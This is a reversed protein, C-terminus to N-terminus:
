RRLLGVLAATDHRRLWAVVCVVVLTIAPIAVLEPDQVATLVTAGIMLPVQCASALGCLRPVLLAIAGAFELWGVVVMGPIGLGILDFPDVAIPNGLMKPLAILAFVIALLVQLVWLAATAAAPRSRPAPSTTTM